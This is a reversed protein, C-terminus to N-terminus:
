SRLLEKASSTADSPIKGAVRFLHPVGVTRGFSLYATYAEEEAEGGEVGEFSDIEGEVRYPGAIREGVLRSVAVLELRPMEKKHEGAWWLLRHNKNDYWLGCHRGDRDKLRIVAQSTTTHVNERLSLQEPRVWGSDDETIFPFHAPDVTEAWFQLVSPGFDPGSVNAQKSEHELVPTGRALITHLLGRHHITFTDIMPTPLPQSQTPLNDFLRYGPRGVWPVWGAWSWSPFYPKKAHHEPDKPNTVYPTRNLMKQGPAWLLALDLASTPLASVFGGAFHEELVGLIGTFANVIDDDETLECCVYIDVLKTYAEFARSLRQQETILGTKALITLPNEQLRPPKDRTAEHIGTPHGELATEATIEQGCQFYVWNSTFFICRRSLMKEQQVWGRTEWVTAELAFLLPSPTTTLMVEQTTSFKSGGEKPNPSLFLTATKQAPRTRPRLGPLGANANKGYAAAITAFAMMYAIDMRHIDREMDEADDQVICMSDVWLYQEGIRRVFLMADRITQPLHCNQESLSGPVFRSEVNSKKTAMTQPGGWVYSLAFYKVASTARVLCQNTVDIFVLPIPEQCRKDSLYKSCRKEHRIQCNMIWSFYKSLLADSEDGTPAGSHRLATDRNRGTVIRLAGVPVLGYKVGLIVEGNDLEQLEFQTGQVEPDIKALRHHLQTPNDPDVALLSLILNCIRCQTKCSARCRLQNWNGHPLMLKTNWSITGDDNRLLPEIRRCVRCLRPNPNKGELTERTLAKSELRIERLLFEEQTRPDPENPDYGMLDRVTGEMSLIITGSGPAMALYRMGTIPDTYPDPPQRPPSKPRRAITSVDSSQSTSALTLGGREELFIDAVVGPRCLRELEPGHDRYLNIVGNAPGSTKHADSFLQFIRDSTEAAVPESLLMGICEQLSKLPKLDLRSGSRMAQSSNNQAEGMKLVHIVLPEFHLIQRSLLYRRALIHSVNNASAIYKAHNLPIGTFAREAQGLTFDVAVVGQQADAMKRLLFLRHSILDVKLPHHPVDRVARSYCDASRRLSSIDLTKDYRTEHMSGLFRLSDVYRDDNVPTSQLGEISNAIAKDLIDLDGGHKYMDMYIEGRATLSSRHGLSGPTLTEINRTLIGLAEGADAEQRTKRYRLHLRIAVNVSNEAKEIETESLDVTQRGCIIAEDLAQLDADLQSKASLAQGLNDYAMKHEKRDQSRTAALENLAARAYAISEALLPRGTSEQGLFFASMKMWSLTNLMEIKDPPSAPLRRVIVQAHDIATFLDRPNHTRQYQGFLARVVSLRCQLEENQDFVGRLDTNELFNLNDYFKADLGQEDNSPHDM